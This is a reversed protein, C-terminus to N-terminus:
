HLIPKNLNKIIKYKPPSKNQNSQNQFVKQNKVSIKFKFKSFNVTQFFEFNSILRNNKLEFKLFNRDFNLSNKLVQNVENLIPVSSGWFMILRNM